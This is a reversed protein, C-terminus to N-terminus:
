LGSTETDLFVFRRSGPVALANDDGVRAMTSPNLHLWDVLPRLGHLAAQAFTRTVKFCSGADTEQVRGEILADIDPGRRVPPPKPKFERGPAIGLRKLRERLDDM